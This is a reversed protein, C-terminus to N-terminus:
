QIVDIQVILILDNRDTNQNSNKKSLSSIGSRMLTGTIKCGTKQLGYKPEKNKADFVLM